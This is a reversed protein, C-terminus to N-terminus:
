ADVLPIDVVHEALFWVQMEHRRLVDGMLLDNSGFDKSEETAEIGRRVKELITEHAALLRDLVVPIEEAGDPAREITTLEAAHRPDGVSIGGLMQVREAIEDTLELQEEAHKDFLLHLQYFTPGAANWHAKKYLAYLITTDALIENLLECSESRAEAPLAIPLQRLSGFRQLERAQQGLKPEPSRASRTSGNTSGTNSGTNSGNRAPSSSAATRPRTTTTAMPIEQFAAARM